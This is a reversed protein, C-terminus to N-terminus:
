GPQPECCTNASSPWSSGKSAPPRARRHPVAWGQKPAASELSRLAADIAEVALDMAVWAAQPTEEMVPKDHLVETLRQAASRLLAMAKASAQRLQRNEKEVAPKM